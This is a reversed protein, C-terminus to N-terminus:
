RAKAVTTLPDISFTFSKKDLPKHCALCEAQNVTTRLKKDPAYVAYNWDENRLMEPIDKGWGANRGMVAFNVFRDPEYFGNAGTIPKKDAGLKAAFQELVLVSGDPLPKGEKAAKMAVPNAYLYRVQNIDPRNVTQYLTYTSRYDEPFPVNTKNVNPLLDSKAVTSPAGPLSSYFAAVNAIDDASLQAAIAGMVANKRTGEKLQRLQSALYASKQGALNPITDSVSVGNIGHCASCVAEARAKGAGANPGPAAAPTQAWASSAVAVLTLCGIWSKMRM